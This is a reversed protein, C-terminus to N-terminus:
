EEAATDVVGSGDDPSEGANTTKLYEFIKPTDAMAEENSLIQKGEFDPYPHTHLLNVGYCKHEDNLMKRDYVNVWHGALRHANLAGKVNSDL